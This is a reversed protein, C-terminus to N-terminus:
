KSHEPCSQVKDKNECNCWKKHIMEKTRNMNEEMLQKTKEPIKITDFFMNRIEEKSQKTLIPEKIRKLLVKPIFDKNGNRFELLPLHNHQLQLWQDNKESCYWGEDDIAKEIHQFIIEGFIKIYIEKIHTTM